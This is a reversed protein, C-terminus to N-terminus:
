LSLASACALAGTSSAGYAGARLSAIDDICGNDGPREGTAIEHDRAISVIELMDGGGEAFRDAHM